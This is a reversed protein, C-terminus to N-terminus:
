ETKLIKQNTKRKRKLELELELFFYKISNMCLM